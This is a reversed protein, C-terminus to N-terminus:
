FINSLFGQTQSLTWKGWYPFYYHWQFVQGVTFNKLVKFKLQSWQWTRSLDSYKGLVPTPDLGVQCNRHYHSNYVALLSVIKRNLWTVTGLVLLYFFYQLYFTLIKKLPQFYSLSFLLNTFICLFNNENVICSWCGPRM